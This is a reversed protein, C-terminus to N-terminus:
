QFKIEFTYQLALKSIIFIIKGALWLSNAPAPKGEARLRSAVHHSNLYPQKEKMFLRAPLLVASATYLFYYMLLDAQSM